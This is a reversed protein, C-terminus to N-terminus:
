RDRRAELYGSLFQSPSNLKGASDLMTTLEVLAEDKTQAKLDLCITDLEILNTIDM